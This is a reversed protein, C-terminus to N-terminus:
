NEAWIESRDRPFSITISSYKFVCPEVLREFCEYKLHIMESHNGAYFAIEEDEALSEAVFVEMGYLNGFPPMAGIECDPFLGIAAASKRNIFSGFAGALIVRDLQKM